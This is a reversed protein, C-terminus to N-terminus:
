RCNTFLGVSKVVVLTGVEHKDVKTTDDAVDESAGATENDEESLEVTM